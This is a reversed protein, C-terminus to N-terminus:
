GLKRVRSEPRTPTELFRHNLPVGASAGFRTCRQGTLTEVEQNLERIIEREEDILGRQGPMEDQHTWYVQEVAEMDIDLCGEKFRELFRRPGLIVLATFRFVEGIEYDTEDRFRLYDRAFVHIAEARSQILNKTNQNM